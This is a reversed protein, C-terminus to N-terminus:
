TSAKTTLLLTKLSLNSSKSTLEDMFVQASPVYRGDRPWNEGIVPPNAMLSVEELFAQYSYEFGTRLAHIMDLLEKYGVKDKPYTWTAAGMVDNLKWDTKPSEEHDNHCSVCPKASAIDPAMYAFREADPSYFFVPKRTERVKQFNKRQEGEFNNAKNIAYDSGLFLGLQIPSQELSTATLKMFQAPLPGAIVEEDFKIQQKKGAGVIAQTYLNRAVDNEEELILLAVQIPITHTELENEKLPVPATVFLYISLVALVFISLVFSKSLKM